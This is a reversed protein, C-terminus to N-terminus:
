LIGVFDDLYESDNDRVQNYTIKRGTVILEPAVYLATGVQGTRSEDTFDISHGTDVDKELISVEEATRSHM